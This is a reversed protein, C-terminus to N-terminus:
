TQAIAWISGHNYGGKHAIIKYGVKRLTNEVEDVPIHFEIWLVPKYESLIHRGGEIVKLESGEVDIKIWDVKELSALRVVEDLPIAPVRLTGEREAVSFLYTGFSHSPPMQLSLECRTDWAAFPLPLIWNGQNFALNHLLYFYNLPAPELAVIKGAPLVRRGVILSFYGRHAGVDIGITNPQIGELWELPYDPEWNWAQGDLWLKYKPVYYFRKTLDFPFHTSGIHPLTDRWRQAKHYSGKLLIGYATLLKSIFRNTLFALTDQVRYGWWIEM